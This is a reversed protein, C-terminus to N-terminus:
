ISGPASPRPCTSPVDPLPPTRRLHPRSVRSAAGPRAGQPAGPGPPPTAPATPARPRAARAPAAAPVTAGPPTGAPRPEPPPGRTQPGPAQAPAPAPVHRGPAPGAHCPISFLALPRRLTRLVPTQRPRGGARGGAAGPRSDCVDASTCRAAERRRCLAGAAANPRAKPAFRAPPRRGADGARRGEGRPYSPGACDDRRPSPLPCELGKQPARTPAGEPSTDLARRPAARPALRSPPTRLRAPPRIHCSPPRGAQPGPGGRPASRSASRWARAAAAAWALAPSLVPTRQSVRPKSNGDCTPYLMCAHLATSSPPSLPLGPRAAAPPLRGAPLPGRRSRRPPSHVGRTRWGAGAAAAAARPRRAPARSRRKYTPPAATKSLILPHAYTRAAPAARARKFLAGLAGSTRAAAGKSRTQHESTWRGKAQPARGGGAPRRIM